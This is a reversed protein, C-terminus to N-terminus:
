KKERKFVMVMGPRAMKPDELQWGQDTHEKLVVNRGEASALRADARKDLTKYEYAVPTASCGSLALAALLLTYRLINM